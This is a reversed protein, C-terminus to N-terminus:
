HPAAPVAARHARGDSYVRHHRVQRPRMHMIPTGEPTKENCPWQVSGLKELRDYSVGAFTPTARAIEDMIESPHTYPMPFDLAESLAVTNEWDGKGSRSNMVKRV